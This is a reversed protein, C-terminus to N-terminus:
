FDVAGHIKRAHGHIGQMCWAMEQMIMVKRAHDMVRNCTGHSEKHAGHTGQM